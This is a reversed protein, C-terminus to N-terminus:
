FFRSFFTSSNLNEKKRKVSLVVEQNRINMPCILNLCYPTNLLSSGYKWRTGTDRQGQDLDPAFIRPCVGRDKSTRPCFWKGRLLLFFRKCNQVNIGNEPFFFLSQGTGDQTRDHIKVSFYHNDWGTDQGPNQYATGTAQGIALNQAKGM